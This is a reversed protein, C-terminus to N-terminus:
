QKELVYWVTYLVFAVVAFVATLLAGRVVRHWGIRILGYCGGYVILGAAAGVLFISPARLIVMYFLVSVGLLFYNMWLFAIRGQMRM